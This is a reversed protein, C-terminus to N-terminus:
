VAPGKKSVDTTPVYVTWTFEIVRPLKNYVGVPVVDNTRITFSGQRKATIVLVITSVALTYTATARVVCLVNVLKM